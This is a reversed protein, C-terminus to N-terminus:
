DTIGPSLVEIIDAEGMVYFTPNYREKAYDAYSVEYPYEEAPNIEIVVVRVPQGIAIREKDQVWAKADYLNVLVVSGVRIDKLTLKNKAM